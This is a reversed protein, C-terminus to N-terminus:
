RVRILDEEISYPAWYSGHVEARHETYKGTVQGDVQTRRISQNIGFTTADYHVLRGNDGDVLDGILDFCYSFLGLVHKAPGRAVDDGDTRHFIANDCVKRHSFFHQRVENLLCVAPFDKNM